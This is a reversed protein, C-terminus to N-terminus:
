YKRRQALKIVCAPLTKGFIKVYSKVYKESAKSAVNSIWCLKMQFSAQANTNRMRSIFKFKKKHFGDDIHWIKINGLSYLLFQVSMVTNNISCIRYVVIDSM